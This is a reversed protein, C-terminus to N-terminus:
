AAPVGGLPTLKRVRDNIYDTVYVSGASDVALRWPDLQASIAPGGDGSSPNFKGNGAISTILGGATVRRVVSNGNDAIFLNGAKDLAVGTPANLMAGTALGGDGSYGAAGTGAVTTIIGSPDIKRVRNNFNDAVYLNLKSDVAIDFPDIGASTAPGSDGSYAPKGNGAM